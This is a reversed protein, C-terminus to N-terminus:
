AHARTAVRDVLQNTTGVLGDAATSPGLTALHAIAEDAYGRAIAIADDIEPGDLVIARAKERDEDSLPAGLIGRLDGGRASGLVRLVPLTYVGEVLDNGSPKGLEESTAVLDLIDDVVQFAMGYREGFSTLTEIEPRPLEGV